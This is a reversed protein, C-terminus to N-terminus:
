PSQDPEYWGSLQLYCREELDPKDEPCWWRALSVRLLMGAPLRDLADEFGVYKINRVGSDVPYEYTIRHGDQQMRLDQDPEWFGTSM